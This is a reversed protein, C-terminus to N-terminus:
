VPVRTNIKIGFLIHAVQELLIKVLNVLIKLYCLRQV